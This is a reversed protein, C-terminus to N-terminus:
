YPLLGAMVWLTMLPSETEMLGENLEDLGTERVEVDIFKKEAM